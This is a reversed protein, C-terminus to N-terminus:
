VEEWSKGDELADLYRKVGLGDHKDARAIMEYYEKAKKLDGRIYSVHGLGMLCRMAPRDNVHAWDMKEPWKNKYFDDLLYKAEQYWRNAEFFDRHEMNVAGMGNHADILDHAILSSDDEHELIKSFHQEAKEFNKVELAGWGEFLEHSYKNTVLALSFMTTILISAYIDITYCLYCFSRTAYNAVREVVVLVVTNQASSNERPLIRRTSM